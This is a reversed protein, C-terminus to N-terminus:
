SLLLHIPYNRESILLVIIPRFRFIIKEIFLKKYFIIARSNISILYYYM